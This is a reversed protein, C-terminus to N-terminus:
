AAQSVIQVVPPPLDDVAVQDATLATDAAGGDDVDYISPDVAMAIGRVYAAFLYGQVSPPKTLGGIAYTSLAATLATAAASQLQAATVGGAGTSYLTLATAVPIATAALVNVTVGDPRALNEISAAAAAVDGASPVGSPSALWVNVVGTSSFASVQVRNINVPVGGNLAVRVAYLYAGRPGGNNLTALKAICLARLDPDSMADQGVVADPNTCTVSLLTTQLQTITAPNSNGVSGAVVCAVPVPLASAGPAITVTATNAYVQKTTPNVFQLQGATFPGYLGGGSNTVNVTGTAPTAAPRVVNFVYFALLTLWTGTATPLFAAQVVNSMTVTFGAYFTAVVRLITSYAGGKRWTNAPVGLMVLNAILTNFVQDSTLPTILESIPLPAGM